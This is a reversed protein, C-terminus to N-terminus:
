ANFSSVRSLLRGRVDLLSKQLNNLFESVQAFEEMMQAILKQSTAISGQDAKTREMVKQFDAGVQQNNPDYSATNLLQDTAKRSADELEILKNAMNVNQMSKDKLIVTTIFQMFATMAGIDGSMAQMAFYMFLMMMKKQEMQTKGLQDLSNLNAQRFMDSQMLAAVDFPQGPVQAKGTPFGNQPAAGAQAGQSQQAPSTIQAKGVTPSNGTPSGPTAGTGGALNSSGAFKSLESQNGSSLQAQKNKLANALQQMKAQAANFIGTLRNVEAGNGDSKADDIKEKLESLAEDLSKLRAIAKDGDLGSLNGPTAAGGLTAYLKQEPWARTSAGVDTGMLAERIKDVDVPADDGKKVDIVKNGNDTHITYLVRQQSDKVQITPM